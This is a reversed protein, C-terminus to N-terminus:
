RVGTAAARVLRLWSDANKRETPNSFVRDLAAKQTSYGHAKLTDFDKLVLAVALSESTSWGRYRGGHSTVYRVREVTERSFPDTIEAMAEDMIEYRKEDEELKREYAASEDALRRCGNAHGEENNDPNGNYPGRDTVDQGCGGPGGCTWYVYTNGFTGPICGAIQEYAREIRSYEDSWPIELLDAIEAWTSGEGRLDKAYKYARARALKEVVLAAKLGALPLPEAWTCESEPRMRRETMQNPPVAAKVASDVIGRVKVIDFGAASNPTTM